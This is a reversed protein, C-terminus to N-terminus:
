NTMVGTLTGYLIMLQEFEQKKLPRPHDDGLDAIIYEVMKPYLELLSTCQNRQELFSKKMGRGTAMTEDNQNTWERTTTNHNATSQIAAFFGAVELQIDEESLTTSIPYIANKGNFWKRVIKM